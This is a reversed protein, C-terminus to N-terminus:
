SNYTHIGSAEETLVCERAERGKSNTPSTKTVKKAELYTQDKFSWNIIKMIPALASTFMEKCM